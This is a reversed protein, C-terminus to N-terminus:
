SFWIFLHLSRYRFVTTCFFLQLQASLQTFTETQELHLLRGNLLILVEGHQTVGVDVEEVSQERVVDLNTLTLLRIALFHPRVVVV